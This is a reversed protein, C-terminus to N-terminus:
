FLSLPMSGLPWQNPMDDLHRAQTGFADIIGKVITMERLRFTQSVEAGELDIAYDGDGILTAGILSLDGGIKAGTLRVQGYAGFGERCFLHGAVNLNEASLAVGGKDSLWAKDFEANGGIKAAM